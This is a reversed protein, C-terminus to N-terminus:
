KEEFGSPRVTCASCPEHHWYELHRHKCESCVPNDVDDAVVDRVRWRREGEVPSGDKWPEDHKTM